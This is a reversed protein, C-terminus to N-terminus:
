PVPEPVLADAVVEAIRRDVRATPHVADLCDDESWGMPLEVLDAIDLIPVGLREGTWRILQNITLQAARTQNHALAYESSQEQGIVGCVPYTAFICSGGRSTFVSCLAGIDRAFRERGEELIQQPARWRMRREQFSRFLRFIRMEGWIKGTEGIDEEYAEGSFMLSTRDNHGVEFIAVLPTGAAVQSVAGIQENRLGILGAGPEAANYVSYPPNTRAALITQLQSPWSEGQNLGYGAPISDGLVYVLTGGEAPVHLPQVHTRIYQWLYLRLGIEVVALAFVFAGVMLM